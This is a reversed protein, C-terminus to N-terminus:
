GPQVRKRLSNLEDMTEPRYSLELLPFLQEEVYGWNLNQQVSLVNEIDAWDQLRGAFAKHVILDEASCTRLEIQPTVEWVSSRAISNEEFAIAGLSIDVGVNGIRVLLVRTKLAFEKAETLRPEFRSLIPDIFEDESGFGTLLTLDVDNTLRPIGWRQLAVGGIFCFTWGKDIIFQQIEVAAEFILKM